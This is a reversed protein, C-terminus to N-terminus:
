TTSRASLKSGREIVWISCRYGLDLDRVGCVREEPPAEGYTLNAIGLATGSVDKDNVALM